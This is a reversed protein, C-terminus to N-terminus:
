VNVGDTNPSEGSSSNCVNITYLLRPFKIGKSLDSIKQESISLDFYGANLCM